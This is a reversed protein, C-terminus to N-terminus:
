DVMERVRQVRNLLKIQVQLEEKIRGGGGGGGGGGGERERERLCVRSRACMPCM